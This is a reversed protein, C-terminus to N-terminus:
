TWFLAQEVLFFQQWCLRPEAPGYFVWISYDKAYGYGVYCISCYQTNSQRTEGGWDFTVDLLTPSGGHGDCTKATLVFSAARSWSRSMNARKKCWWSRLLIICLVSHKITSNRWKLSFNRGFSHSHRWPRRKSWAIESIKCTKSDKLSDAELDPM